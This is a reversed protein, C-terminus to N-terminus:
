YDSWSRSRSTRFYAHMWAFAPNPRCRCTRPLHDFTYMTVSLVSKRQACVVLEATVKNTSVKRIEAEQCMSSDKRM